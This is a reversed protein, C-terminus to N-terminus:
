IGYVERDDYFIKKPPSTAVPTPYTEEPTVTVPPSPKKPFSDEDFPTSDNQTM